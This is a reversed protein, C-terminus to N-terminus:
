AKWRLVAGGPLTLEFEAGPSVTGVVEPTVWGVFGPSEVEATEALRHKWQRFSARSLKSKRCFAVESMGSRAQRSVISRWELETRRVRGDALVRM